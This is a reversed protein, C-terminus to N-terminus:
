SDEAIPGDLVLKLQTQDHMVQWVRYQVVWLESMGEIRLFDGAQVHKLHRLDKPAPHAKPPGDVWGLHQKAADSFHLSVLWDEEMEM